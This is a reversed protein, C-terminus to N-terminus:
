LSNRKRKEGRGKPLGRNSTPDSCQGENILVKLVGSRCYTSAARDATLGIDTSKLHVTTICYTYLVTHQCLGTERSNTKRGSTRQSVRGNQGEGCRVSIHSGAGAELIFHALYYDQQFCFCFLFVFGSIRQFVARLTSCLM